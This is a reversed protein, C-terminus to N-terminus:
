IRLGTRSPKKQRDALSEVGPRYKEPIGKPRAPLAVAWLLPQLAARIYFWVRRFIVARKYRGLAGGCVSGLGSGHDSFVWNRIRTSTFNGAGSGKFGLKQISCISKIPPVIAEGVPRNRIPTTESM